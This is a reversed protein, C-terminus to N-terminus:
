EEPQAAAAAPASKSRASSVDRRHSRSPRWGGGRRMLRFTLYVASAALAVCIGFEIIRFLDLRDVPQYDTFTGVAAKTSRMCSHAVVFDACQATLDVPELDGDVFGDAIKLAHTPMVTTQDWRAISRHAPLYHDRVFMALVGRVLTYLVLTVAMASLTHRTLLGALVGLALGLLAYGAQVTWNAEFSAWSRDEEGSLGDGAGVLAGLVAAVLGLVVLKGRLWQGPTVDQGWAVFYTREELERAILPAGWFAGLLAGFGLQVILAYFATLPMSSRVWGGETSVLGYAALLAVVSMAVIAWRHQRWTLWIISEANV